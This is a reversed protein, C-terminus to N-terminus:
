CTELGYLRNVCASSDFAYIRRWAEKSGLRYLAEPTEIGARILQQATDKGINPLATLRSVGHDM